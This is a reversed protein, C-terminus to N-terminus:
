ESRREDEDEEYDPNEYDEPNLMQDFARDMAEWDTGYYYDESNNGEDNQNENNQGYSIGSLVLLCVLIVLLTKLIKM